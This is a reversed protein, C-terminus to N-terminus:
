RISRRSCQNMEVCVIRALDSQCGALNVSTDDYVDRVISFRSVGSKFVFSFGTKQLFSKPAYRFFFHPYTFRSSCTRQRVLATRISQRGVPCYCVAM